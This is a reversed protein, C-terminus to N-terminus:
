REDEKPEPIFCFRHKGAWPLGIEDAGLTQVYEEIRGDEGTYEVLWRGAKTPESSWALPLALKGAALAHVIVFAAYGEMDIPVTASEDDSM